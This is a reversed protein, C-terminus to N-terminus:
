SEVVEEELRSMRLLNVGDHLAFGLGVPVIGVLATIWMAVAIGAAAELGLGFLEVLVVAAAVQMGGGVGPIQIVSGFSVFGMFILVEGLNLGATEPFARFLTLYSAAVIGWEIVSWGLLRFVAEGSRASGFGEALSGVIRNARDQAGAGLLDLFPRLRSALDGSWRHLGFLVALTLLGLAAAAGGGARLAWELVPGTRREPGGTVLALAFGFLLLVMLLDCIREMLWAAMQSSFPVSERSAILYPRVLEGPRGLVVIATYGIATAKFLSWVSAEPRLPEILVRWRLARGYYSLLIITVAALLWVPDAGRWVALLQRFDFHGEGRWRIGFWVAAALLVM